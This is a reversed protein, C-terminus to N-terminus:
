PDISGTNAKPRAALAVRVVTTALAMTAILYVAARPTGDHLYGFVLGIAAGGLMQLFGLV